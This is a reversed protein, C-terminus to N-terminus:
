GSPPTQPMLSIPYIFRRVRRGVRMYVCLQQYPYGQPNVHPKIGVYGGLDLIRDIDLYKEPNIATLGGYFLGLRDLVAQIPVLGLKEFSAMTEESIVTIQLQYQSRPNPGCVWLNATPGDSENFWILAELDHATCYDDLLAKLQHLYLFNIMLEPAIIVLRVSRTPYRSPTGIIKELREISWGTDSQLLVDLDRVFYLPTDTSM